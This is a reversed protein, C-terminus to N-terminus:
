QLYLALKILDSDFCLIEALYWRCYEEQRYMKYLTIRMLLVNIYLSDIQCYISLCM